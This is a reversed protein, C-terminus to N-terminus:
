SSRLDRLRVIVDEMELSRLEHRDWFGGRDDIAVEVRRSNTRNEGPVLHPELDQYGVGFFKSLKAARMRRQRFDREKRKGTTETRGTNKSTGATVAPKQTDPPLMNSFPPPTMPVSYAFSQEFRPLAPEPAEPQPLVPTTPTLPPTPAIITSSTSVRRQRGSIPQPSLLKATSISSLTSVSGRKDFGETRDAEVGSTPATHTVQFLAQPPDSGFVQQMKKARRVNMVRQKETLPEPLPNMRSLRTEVDRLGDTVSASGRKHTWLSQSRSVTVQKPEAGGALAIRDVTPTVDVSARRKQTAWNQATRPPKQYKSSLTQAPLFLDNSPRKPKPPEKVQTRRGTGATSLRNTSALSPHTPEVASLTWGPRRERNPTTHQRSHPYHPTPSNGTQSPRDRPPQSISPESRSSTRPLVVLPLDSIALGSLLPNM